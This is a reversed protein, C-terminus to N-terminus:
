STNLLVFWKGGNVNSYMFNMIVSHSLSKSKNKWPQFYFFGVCKNHQVKETQSNPIILSADCCDKLSGPTQSHSHFLTAKNFVRRSNHGNLYLSEMMLILFFVVVFFLFMQILLLFMKEQQFLWLLNNYLGLICCVDILIYYSLNEFHFSNSSGETSGELKRQTWM